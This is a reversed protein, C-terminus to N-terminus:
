QEQDKPWLSNALQRASCSRLFAADAGAVQAHELDAASGGLVICPNEPRHQKSWRVLSKVEEPALNVDIVLLYPEGNRMQEIASLAGSAIVVDTLQPISDLM